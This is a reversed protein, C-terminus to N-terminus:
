DEKNSKWVELMPNYPLRSNVCWQSSCCLDKFTKLSNVHIPVDMEWDLRNESLSAIHDTATIYRVMSIDGSSLCRYDQGSIM